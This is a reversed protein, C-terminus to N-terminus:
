AGGGQAQRVLKLQRRQEQAYREAAAEDELRQRQREETELRLRQRCAEVAEDVQSQLGDHAVAPAEAPQPGPAPLAAVAREERDARTVFPIVEGGKAAAPPPLTPAPPKATMAQALAVDPYHATQVAAPYQRMIKLAAKRERAKQKIQPEGVTMSGPIATTAACLLERRYFVLIRSVDAPDYRVDAKEGIYGSLESAWYRMGLLHIGDNAIRRECVKMLMFAMTHAHPIERPVGEWLALPTTGLGSHERAHYDAIFATLRERIQEITLLAGSALEAKLKEPRQQSNPGCWGIQERDFRDSLNRFWREIPKSRAAYPNAHTVDVGLEGFVGLTEQDCSVTVTKEGNLYHCKYDKGNDIYVRRPRGYALVGNRFALAITRSSPALDLYWGVIARSRVDEWATLWPRLYGKGHPQRIFIDLERHDGCWMGGVAVDEYDRRLIPDYHKAWAKKGLRHYTRVAIPIKQCERNVTSPSPITFGERACFTATRAAVTTRHPQKPDLFAQQIFRKVDPHLSPPRRWQPLLATFGGENFRSIWGRVTSAGQGHVRAVEATIITRRKPEVAARAFIEDIVRKRMLAEEVAGASPEIVPAPSTPVTPTPDAAPPPAPPPVSNLLAIGTLNHTPPAHYRRIAEPGLDDLAVLVPRKGNAAIHSDPRTRLRGAAIRREITDLSCGCLRAAEQKSIWTM